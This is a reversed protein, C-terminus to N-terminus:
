RSIFCCIMSYEAGPTIDPATELLGDYGNDTM